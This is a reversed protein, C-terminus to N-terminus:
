NQSLAFGSDKGFFSLSVRHSDLVLNDPLYFNRVDLLVTLVLELNTSSESVFDFESLVVVLFNDYSSLFGEGLNSALVFFCWIGVLECSVLM